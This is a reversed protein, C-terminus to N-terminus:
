RPLPELTINPYDAPYTSVALFYELADCEEATLGLPRILPHINPDRVYRGDGNRFYGGANFYLVCDRLTRFSGNHMYPQTIGVAVLGPTKFARNYAPNGDQNPIGRALIAGQDQGNLNGRRSFYETGIDYLQNNTLAPGNHCQVCMGKGKFIAYGLKEKADMCWTEGHEARNWHTDTAVIQMEFQEMSAAISALDPDRGYAQRFEAVYGPIQRIRNELQVPTQQGHEVGNQLPRWMQDTLGSPSVGDWFQRQFFAVNLLSPANRTGQARVDQGNIRTLIGESVQKNDCFGKAPQHCDICSTTRNISLRSDHFMQNGIKQKLPNPVSNDYPFPFRLEQACTSSVLSSALLLGCLALLVRRM